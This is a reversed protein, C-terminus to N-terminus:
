VRMLCNKKALTIIEHAQMGKGEFLRNNRNRWLAWCITLFVDYEPGRIERHVSRLWAEISGTQYAVAGWPLDSLAWVLRAFSCLCLVHVLDEVEQGSGFLCVGDVQIGRKRLNAGTPIANRSSYCSRYASRVSFRSNKEFHWILEDRSETELLEVNLICDADIPHFESRVLDSNWTRSPSILAVVKTNNPLSYPRFVLQFTDPRPLWSQGIIPVSLWDGIRWRLGAALLERTGLLSRWTFSPNSGLRAEIESLLSDPLRFCSMVYSPITLIVSKILVVGGATPLGLYKDHKPVVPIGLISALALRTDNDVNKSFIVASKQKNIM